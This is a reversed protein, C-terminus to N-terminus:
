FVVMIGVMCVGGCATMETVCKALVFVFIAPVCATIIALVSSKLTHTHTTPINKYLHLSLAFCFGRCVVSASHKYLTVAPVPECLSLSSPQAATRRAGKNSACVATTTNTTTPWPLLHLTCKDTLQHTWNRSSSSSSISARKRKTSYLKDKEALGGKKKGRVTTGDDNNRGLIERTYTHKYTRIFLRTRTHTHKTSLNSMSTTHVVLMDDWEETGTRWKIIANWFSATPNKFFFCYSTQHSPSSPHTHTHPYVTRVTLFIYLWIFFFM